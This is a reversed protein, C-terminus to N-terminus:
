KGAPELLKELAKRQECEPHTAILEAIAARDKEGLSKAGKKEYKVVQPQLASNAQETLLAAKDTEIKTALNRGAEGSDCFRHAGAARASQWAKLVGSDKALDKVASKLLKAADKEQANELEDRYAVLEGHVELGAWEDLAREYDQTDRPSKKLASKIAKWLKTAAKDVGPLRKVMVGELGWGMTRLRLGAFAAVGEAEGRKVATEVESIWRQIISIAAL